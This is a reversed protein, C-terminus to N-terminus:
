AGISVGKILDKFPKVVNDLYEGTLETFLSRIDIYSATGEEDIEGEPTQFSFDFEEM